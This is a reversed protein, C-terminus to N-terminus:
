PWGARSVRWWNGGCCARAVPSLELGGHVDGLCQRGPTRVHLHLVARPLERTGGARFALVSVLHPPHWHWHRYLLTTYHLGRVTGGGGCSYPRRLQRARQRERSATQRGGSQRRGLALVRVLGTDVARGALVLRQRPLVEAVLAGCGGRRHGGRRRHRRRRGCGATRHLRVHLGARGRRAARRPGCRCRGPKGPLAPHPLINAYAAAGGHRWRVRLLGPTCLCRRRQRRGCGPM